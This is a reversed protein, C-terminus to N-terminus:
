FFGAFGGGQCSKELFGKHDTAYKVMKKFCCGLLNGPSVGRWILGSNQRHKRSATKEGVKIAGHVSHTSTNGSKSSWNGGQFSM